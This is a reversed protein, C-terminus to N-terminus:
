SVIMLVGMCTSYFLSFLSLDRLSSNLKVPEKNKWVNLGLKAIPIFLIGLVYFHPIRDINLFGWALSSILAGILLVWHYIKAKTRGLLVPITTKGVNSDSDIDRINNINLVGTALFGCATAPLILAYNFEQTQIFYSGIVGVLGFFIYVFLDGLARYGYANKGATYNIAAWISALGLGLFGLAYVMKEAGFSVWLLLIGSLFALVGCIIIGRKMQEKSIAGSQLAREPGLREDNDAGKVFDGYDNALNSLIQLFVTTQIALLCITWSFQGSFSALFSGLIISSLSLPLTKLRFAKIWHKM